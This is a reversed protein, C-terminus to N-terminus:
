KSVIVKKTSAGTESYITVLYVGATFNDLSITTTNNQIESSYIRKGDPTTIDLRFIITDSEINLIDNTPNPFISLTPRVNTNNVGLVNSCESVLGFGAEEITVFDILSANDTKIVGGSRRDVLRRSEARYRPLPSICTSYYPDTKIFYIRELADTYRPKKSGALIFGGDAALDAGYALYASQGFYEVGRVYEGEITSEALLFSVLGANGVAVVNGNELATIKQFNASTESRGYSKWWSMDGLSNMKVIYGRGADHGVAAYGGDLTPLIDHARNPSTDDLLSTWELNGEADLKIFYSDYYNNMSDFSNSEGAIIFGGDLDQNIAYGIDKGPGGISKSWEIVGNVNMKVVYVDKEENLIKSSGVIIFSGDSCTKVANGNLNGKKEEVNRTWEIEGVANLKIIYIYETQTITSKSTGVILFGGDTTLEVSNGWNKGDIGISKSWQLELSDSVRLVYIQDKPIPRLISKSGVMIYGGEPITKVSNAGYKGNITEGEVMGEIHQSYFTETIFLCLFFSLILNFNM